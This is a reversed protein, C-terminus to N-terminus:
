KNRIALCYKGHGLLLVIVMVIISFLQSTGSSISYFTALLIAIVLALTFVNYSKYLGIHMVHREGEDSVELLKEAYNKESFGPLNQDPYVVPLLILISMSFIYSAMIGVIILATISLPQNTILSISLALVSLTTSTSTFFSYDTFIKYILIDVEDEEDGYIDKGKLKKIKGYIVMSRLLMILIIVFIGIVAPYAYLTLDFSFSKLVLTASVFGLIAYILIQVWTKM